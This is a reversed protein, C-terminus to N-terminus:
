LYFLWAVVILYDLCPNKNHSEKIGRNIREKKQVDNLLKVNLFFFGGGGEVRRKKKM